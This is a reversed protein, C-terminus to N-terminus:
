SQCGSGAIEQQIVQQLHVATTQKRLKEYVTLAEPCKGLSVYNRAAQRLAEAVLSKESPYLYAVRLYANTGEQLAGAQTHARGIQWQAQAAVHPDPTQQAEELVELARKSRKMELLTVGWQLWSDSRVSDHPYTLVVQKFYERAQDYDKATQALRGAQYLGRAAMRSEPYQDAVQAYRQGADRDGLAEAAQARGFLAESKLEEDVDSEALQEFSAIADRPAGTGLYLEGLRLQAKSALPQGAYTKAMYQYTEIAEKSQDQTQFHEAMQLLVSESLRHDPFDRIFGQSESLFQPYEGLQYHSLVLGYRADAVETSDPYLLTVKRYAILGEHYRKENYYTDALRVGATPATPHKAHATSFAAFIERAEAFQNSRFLANGHRFQADIAAETGPYQEQIRQLAAINQELGEGQGQLLSLQM